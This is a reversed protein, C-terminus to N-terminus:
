AAFETSDFAYLDDAGQRASGFHGLYEPLLRGIYFRALKTRHSKPSSAIAAQLHYYGGLIRAAGLLFPVAGAFRANVDSQAAIWETMERLSELAEWVPEAFEAFATRHAKVFHEAEDLLAFLAEGGDM